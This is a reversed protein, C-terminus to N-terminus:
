GLMPGPSAKEKNWSDGTRPQRHGDARFVSDWRQKLVHSITGRRHM